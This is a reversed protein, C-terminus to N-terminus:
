TDDPFYLQSCCRPVGIPIAVIRFVSMAVHQRPHPAVLVRLCQQHPHWVACGGPPCHSPKRPFQVCVSGVVWCDGEKSDGTSSSISTGGFVQVRTEAAAKDVIAWVPFCGLHGGPPLLISRICIWVVSCREEGLLSASKRWAFVHLFSLCVHRLSLAWRFPEM